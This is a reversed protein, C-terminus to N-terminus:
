HLRSFSFQPAKVDGQTGVFAGSDLHERAARQAALYKERDVRVDTVSPTLQVYIGNRMEEVHAAPTGLLRERGFLEFYPPGFFMGWAIGPLGRRLDHTTLAEVFPLTRLRYEDRDQLDREDVVHVHSLDVVFREQLRTLLRLAPDVSFPSQRVKIYVSTRVRGGTWASGQVAPRRRRWLFSSGWAEKLIDDIKTPDFPRRVPEFYNYMEPAWEPAAELLDQLFTRGLERDSVDLPILIGINIRSAVNNRSSNTPRSHPTLSAGQKTM